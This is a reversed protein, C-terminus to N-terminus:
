SPAPPCSTNAVEAVWELMVRGVAKRTNPIRTGMPEFGAVPERTLSVYYVYDLDGAIGHFFELRPYPDGDAHDDAGFTLAFGQSEPALIPRVLRARRGNYCVSRRGLEREMVEPEVGRAYYDSFLDAVVGTRGAVMGSEDGPELNRALLQGRADPVATKKDLAEVRTIPLDRASGAEDTATDPSFDVLLAVAAGVVVLVVVTALCGLAAKGSDDGDDLIFPTEATRRTM